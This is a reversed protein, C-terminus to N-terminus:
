KVSALWTIFDGKEQATCARKYVDDCNRRFWKETKKADTFRAATVSPALPDISRFAPTKGPKKPDSSHCSACSMAKGSALSSRYYLAKGREASFGNFKANEQRAPAAYSNVMSAPTEAYASAALWCSLAILTIRM